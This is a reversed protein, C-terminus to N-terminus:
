NTLADSQPESHRPNSDRRGGRDFVRTKRTFVLTKENNPEIKIALEIAQNKGSTSMNQCPKGFTPAVIPAVNRAPGETGTAQMRESPRPNSASLSPLSEVAGAVDLLKPDTYVNMTLDIRSHRMAAQATRPSVGAQSLMTGFTTRLAHVDLSRGREDTKAIGATALDRDLIRILGDPVNFLPRSEMPKGTKLVHRETLSKTREVWDRLESALDSCLAVNSGQRNKEDRAHLEISPTKDDLHLQGLTISRLENCRLGTLIFVKYVLMREYGRQELEDVFAANDNLRERARDCCQELTELTLAEYTWNSRKKTSDSAVTKRGYEALPRWLAVQLLQGIETETMARRTKRQDGKEDAKAVRSLPNSNLRSTQICWNLFTRLAQLYGNRTRAAMGETTRAILWTEMPERRIDSLRAFKCELILREIKQQSDAIHKATVGASAMSKVYAALHVATTLQQQKAITSEDSTIVGARLLEERRLIEKLVHKAADEHRCSTAVERVLGLHDRYKATYTEAKTTMREQGDKGLVVRATKREGKATFRVFLVGKREIREVNDPISRTVTKRYVTAMAEVEMLNGM